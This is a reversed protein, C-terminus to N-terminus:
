VIAISLGPVEGQDVTAQAARQVAAVGRMVQDRGVQDRGVQDAAYAPLTAFFVMAVVVNIRQHV